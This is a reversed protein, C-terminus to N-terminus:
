KKQALVLLSGGAPFQIRLKLLLIELYMVAGLVLNLTSSIKLESGQELRGKKNSTRSLWMMPLLLSVFSTAYRVELGEAQLKVLLDDRTYRRVHCAREDVPSWLWMHQPVTILLSGHPKLARALNKLVTQDDEIHEIVDFAGIVDYAEADDMHLADMQGLCADPVRERAYDLGEEFYETASLAVSQFEKRIGQLVFGTGCGVELLKEFNKVKTKLVWLLIENRARFWWHGKEAKALEDYDGRPFPSRETTSM